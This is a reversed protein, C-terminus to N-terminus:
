LNSLMSQYIGNQNNDKSKNLLCLPQLFLNCDEATFTVSGNRVTGAICLELQTTGSPKTSVVKLELKCETNNFIYTCNCVGDM